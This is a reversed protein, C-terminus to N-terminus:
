ATAEKRGAMVREYFALRARCWAIQAEYYKRDPEVEAVRIRKWEGEEQWGRFTHNMLTKDKLVSVRDGVKLSGRKACKTVIYRVGPEMESLRM